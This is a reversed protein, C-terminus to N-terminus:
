YLIAVRDKFCHITNKIKFMTGSLDYPFNQRGLNKTQTDYLLLVIDERDAYVDFLRFYWVPPCKACNTKSM